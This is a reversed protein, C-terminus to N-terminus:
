TLEWPDAGHLLTLSVKLEELDCLMRYWPGDSCTCNSLIDRDSSCYETHGLWVAMIVCVCYIVLKALAILWFFSWAYGVM